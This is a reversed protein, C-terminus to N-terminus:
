NEKDMRYGIGRVTEICDIGLKKRLNMIHINVVKEDGFYDYGWVQNLLAERTFVYGQHSMLLQLLEFETRTLEIKQDSVFVQLCEKDLKINKYTQINNDEQNKHKFGGAGRRLVAEVRMQVLKISFPKTIYDDVLMEFAKIQDDEEDMATVIVIPINSKQRIMECVAYGDIKPMMIDLLILDYTHTHFFNIGEIGDDATDVYYGSDVLFERLITQIAIEDEIVLIRKSM